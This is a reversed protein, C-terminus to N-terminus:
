KNRPAQAKKHGRKKSGREPKFFVMLGDEEQVGKRSGKRRQKNTLVRRNEKRRSYETPGKFPATNERGSCLEQNGRTSRKQEKLCKSRVGANGRRFHDRERRKRRKRKKLTDGIHSNGATKGKGGKEEM